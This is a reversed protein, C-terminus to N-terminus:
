YYYSNIVSDDLARRSQALGQELHKLGLERMAIMILGMKCILLCQPVSLTSVCGWIVWDYTPSCAPGLGELECDARKARDCNQGM